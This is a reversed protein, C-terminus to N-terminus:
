NSKTLFINARFRPETGGKGDDVLEDCYKAIRYLAYKDIDKEKIWKGAGYRNNTVIDMFVWAPNDTYFGQGGNKWTGDWFEEYKAVGNGTYERPTYTSPIKVVLMGQMEYSLIPTNQYLQSNFSTQM